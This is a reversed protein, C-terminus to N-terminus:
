RKSTGNDRSASGTDDADGDERGRKRWLDRVVSMDSVVSLDDGVTRGLDRDDMWESIQELLASADQVKMKVKARSKVLTQSVTDDRGRKRRIEREEEVADWVLEARVNRSRNKRRSTAAGDEHEGCREVRKRSREDRNSSDRVGAGEERAIEAEVDMEGLWEDADYEREVERDQDTEAKEGEREDQWCTHKLNHREQPWGHVDFDIM